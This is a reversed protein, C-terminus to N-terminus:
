ASVARVPEHSAGLPLTEARPAKSLAILAIALILWRIM